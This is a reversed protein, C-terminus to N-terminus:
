TVEDYRRWVVRKRMRPIRCPELALDVATPLPPEGERTAVAVIDALDPLKARWRYFGDQYDEVVAVQLGALREVEDLEAEIEPDIGM